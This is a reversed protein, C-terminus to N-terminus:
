CWIYIARCVYELKTSSSENLLQKRTGPNVKSQNTAKIALARSPLHLAALCPGLPSPPLYKGIATINATITKNSIM